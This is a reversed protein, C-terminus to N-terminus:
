KTRHAVRRHRHPRIGRQHPHARRPRGLRHRRQVFGAQRCTLNETIQVAIQRPVNLQAARQSRRNVPRRRRFQTHCLRGVQRRNCQRGEAALHLRCLLPRRKHIHGHVIINLRGVCRHRRYRIQRRRHLRDPRRRRLESKRQLVGVRRQSNQARSPDLPGLRPRRELRHEIIQHGGSRAGGLRQVLQPHADIIGVARHPLQRLNDTIQALREISHVLARNHDAAPRRLLVMLQLQRLLRISLRSIRDVLM